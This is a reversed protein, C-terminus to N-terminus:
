QFLNSISSIIDRIFGMIRDILGSDEAEQWAESLTTQIDQSLQDLQKRVEESDIASTQQYNEFVIILQYIQDGPVVERLNHRELADNIIQEIEERTALQDTRNKIEALETKIDVIAQDLRSSEEEDLSQSIENTTELEEQAVRMRDTELEEGNVEFAKYVGTLASEGTAPRISDVHISVDNAGATIAANAYEEETIQTINEPHPIEVTVGSGSSEKEVVVSSILQSTQTSYGLYNEFDVSDVSFVELPDENAVGLLQATRQSEDETLGGGYIFTPAGWPEEVEVAEVSVQKLSILFVSSLAIIFMGLKMIKNKM